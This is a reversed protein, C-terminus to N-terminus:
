LLMRRFIMVVWINENWTDTAKIQHCIYLINRLGFVNEKGDYEVCLKKTTDFILTLFRLSTQDVPSAFVM